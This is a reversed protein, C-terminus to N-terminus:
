LHRRLLTIAQRIEDVINQTEARMTPQEDQKSFHRDTPAICLCAAAPQLAFHAPALGAWGSM